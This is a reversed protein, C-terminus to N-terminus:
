ASLLQQLYPSLFRGAPDMSRRVEMADQWRPYLRAFDSANLNHMKGWHPRGDYRRFIAEAAHFYPQPNEGALHHVAISCTPRQYFPSLWFDDAAVARVELPFYVNPFQTEAMKILERLASAGAEFPLHYEMENFRTRRDTVYVNLWDQVYDELPVKALASGILKRRLWPFWSLWNRLAKLTDLGDEDEEEPRASPPQDSLDSSVYLAHDSYPIVFFETTRHASMLAELNDLMEAVPIPRRQRRLRYGPVNKMTIRTLAGFAGLTVGTAHIMDDDRGQIFERVEGRGDVFTMAQLQTHYAGLTIGTGHTATGLAGAITQKDIDGMNPLGQGIGQLLKMLDSLRTAAGITATMEDANHDVLGAFASLDIISGSSAVLPTFSHGSGVFRLPAPAERILEQLAPQDAPRLMKQPNASVYGSWNQWHSLATTTM